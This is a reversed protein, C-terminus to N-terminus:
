GAHSLGEMKEWKELDFDMVELCRAAHRRIASWTPEGDVLRESCIVDDTVAVLLPELDLIAQVAAGPLASRAEPITRMRRVCNHADELLEEPLLYEDKTAHNIYRQQLTLSALYALRKCISDRETMAHLPKNNAKRPMTQLSHQSGLKNGTTSRCM